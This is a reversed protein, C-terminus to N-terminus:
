KAAPKNQQINYKAIIQKADSDTNALNILDLVLKELSAQIKRSQIVTEEQKQIGIQLGNHQGYNIKLEWAFILLLSLSILLLPYFGSRPTEIM